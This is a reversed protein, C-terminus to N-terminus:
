KTEYKRLFKYTIFLIGLYIVSTIVGSIAVLKAGSEDDYINLLVVMLILGVVDRILRLSFLSWNFGKAIFESQFVQSCASFITSFVCYNLVISMSIFSPGYFKSIFDASFYILLFPLLTSLLNVLLMRNIIKSHKTEDSVSSSLYSLVVNYLLGPIFLIIANWQAAASYIGLEGMNSYKVLLIPSLWSVVAYSLEQLAVPFSFRLIKKYLRNNEIKPYVKCVNNLALWNLFTNLIQTLTLSILAGYLQFYYALPLATLLMFVGSIVNNKAIIKFEKFGALIGNATTLLARVVAIFGLVQFVLKLSPADLYASIYSASLILLLALFSGSVLTIVLSVKTVAYVYEKNNNIYDAIFKTSTYGLGFTSFAAITFMTTKVLGYEGYLDKGLFRAILIGSLLLLGYGIGNGFVAWFSDKFMKSQRLNLIFKNNVFNM